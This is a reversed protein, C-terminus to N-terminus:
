GTGKEYRKIEKCVGCQLIFHEKTFLNNESDNVDFIESWLM